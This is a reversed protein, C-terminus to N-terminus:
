ATLMMQKAAIQKAFQPTQLVKKVFTKAATNRPTTLKQYEPDTASALIQPHFSKHHGAPHYKIWYEAVRECYFM